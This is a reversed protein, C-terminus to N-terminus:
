GVKAKKNTLDIKYLTYGEEQYTDDKELTGERIKERTPRETETIMDNLLVKDATRGTEQFLELRGDKITVANPLRIYIVPDTIFNVNSNPYASASILANFRVTDGGVVANKQEGSIPDSLLPLRATPAATKGPDYAQEMALPIQAADKKVAVNYKGPPVKGQNPDATNYMKMDAVGPEGEGGKYTYDTTVKDGLLKGFTAGKNSTPDTKRSAVYGVYDREYSGVNARIATFYEDDDLDAMQTTFLAFGDPSELTGHYSTWTDNTSNTTKYWVEIGTNGTGAPIKQATVGFKDTNRYTFEVTKQASDAGGHNVVMFLGLCYIADAKDNQFLGPGVSEGVIQMSEGDHAVYKETAKFRSLPYWVSGDAWTIKGMVAGNKKADIGSLDAGTYTSDDAYIAENRWWVTTNDSPAEETKWKFWPTLYESPYELYLNEWTLTVTGNDNKKENYAFDDRYNGDDDEHNAPDMLNKRSSTGYLDYTMHHFEAYFKEGDKEYYPLAITLELKKMFSTMEIYDKDPNLWIQKLAFATTADTPVGSKVGVKSIRPGTRLASEPNSKGHDYKGTIMPTVSIKQYEQATQGNDDATYVRIQLTETLKQEMGRNWLTTDPALIINFSNTEATDRLSYTITGNKPQYGGYSTTSEQYEVSNVMDGRDPIPYEVVTLGDPVTIEVKKNPLNLRSKVEIHLTFQKSFDVSFSAAELSSESSSSEKLLSQDDVGEARIKATVIKMGTIPNTDTEDSLAQINSTDVSDFSTNNENDEEIPNPEEENSLNPKDEESPKLSDVDTEQNDPQPNDSKSPQTTTSSPVTQNQGSGNSVTPTDPDEVFESSTATDGTQTQNQTNDLNTQPRDPTETDIQPPNAPTSPSDPQEQGDANDPTQIELSDVFELFEEIKDPDIQEKEEEELDDFAKKAKAAQKLLDLKDDENLDTEQEKQQEMLELVADIQEEVPCIPCIFSCRPNDEDETYGCNEDHIHHKCPETKDSEPQTALTSSNDAEQQGEGMDSSEFLDQSTDIASVEMMNTGLAVCLAASAARCWFNAMNKHRRM